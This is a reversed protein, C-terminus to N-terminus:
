DKADTKDGTHFRIYETSHSVIKVPQNYGEKLIDDLNRQSLGGDSNMSKLLQDATWNLDPQYVVIIDKIPTTMPKGQKLLALNSQDIIIISTGDEAKMYLM